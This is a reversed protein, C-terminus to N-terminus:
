CPLVMLSSRLSFGLRGLRRRNAETLAEAQVEEAGVRRALGMIAPLCKAGWYFGSRPVTAMALVHLTRLPWKQLAVIAVGLARGPAPSADPLARAVIAHADERELAGIIGELWRAARKGSAVRALLPRLEEGWPERELKVKQLPAGM